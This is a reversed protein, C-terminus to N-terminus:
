NVVKRRPKEQNTYLRPKSRQNGSHRIDISRLLRKLLRLRSTMSVRAWSSRTHFDDIAEVLSTRSLYLGVKNQWLFSQQLGVVFCVTKHKCIYTHIHTSVYTQTYVDIRIHVYIHTYIFPISITFTHSFASYNHQRLTNPVLFYARM